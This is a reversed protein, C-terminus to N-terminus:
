KGREKAFVTTLSYVEDEVYITIVAKYEGAKIKYALARVVLDDNLGIPQIRNVTVQEIETVVNYRLRIAIVAANSTLMTINGVSVEGFENTMFELTKGTIVVEPEKESLSFGSMVTNDMTEGFQPQKQLSQLAAIIDQRSVVGVLMEDEVVPVLEISEWVLLRALYSVLDDPEVKILETAMIDSIPTGHTSETVNRATVLGRLVGESDVVPFRSHGTRNALEHWQAVTDSVNLTWPKTTMIDRIRVLDRNEVREFVMQNILSIAEFIESPTSLIPQGNANAEKLYHEPVDHRGTLLLPIQHAVVYNLIAEDYEAIVLVQDNPEKAQLSRINTAVYYAKPPIDRHEFGSLIKGELLLSLEHYSLSDISREAVSAIRITGVKPISSVFGLNEAEKIARYVTGESVKLERALQRVSVKDGVTLTEIYKIVQEHKTTPTMSM